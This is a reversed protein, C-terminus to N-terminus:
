NRLDIPKSLEEMKKPDIGFLDNGMKKARSNDERDDGGYGSDRGGASSGLSSANPKRGNRRETVFKADLIIDKLKSPDTESGRMAEFRAEILKREDEDGSVEKLFKTIENKYLMESTAQTAVQKIKEEDFVPQTVVTEKPEKSKSREEHLASNLQSIKGEKETLAKAADEAAKKNAESEARLAAVEEDTM